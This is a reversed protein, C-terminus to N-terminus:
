EAWECITWVGKKKKQKETEWPPTGSLHGQWGGGRHCYGGGQGRIRSVWLNNVDGKKKKQEGLLLELGVCCYGCGGAGVEEAGLSEGGWLHTGGPVQHAGRVGGGLVRRIGRRRVYGRRACPVAVGKQRAVRGGSRGCGDSRDCRRRRCGSETLSWTM